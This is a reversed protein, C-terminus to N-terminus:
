ESKINVMSALQEIPKGILAELREDIYNKVEEMFGSMDFTGDDRMFNNLTWNFDISTSQDLNTNNNDKKDIHWYGTTSDKSTSISLPYSLFM